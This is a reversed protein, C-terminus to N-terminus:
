IHERDDACCGLLQVLAHVRLFQQSCHGLTAPTRCQGSHSQLYMVATAASPLSAVLAASLCCHYWPVSVTLLTLHLVQGLNAQALNLM